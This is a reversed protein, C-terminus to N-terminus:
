SPPSEKAGLGCSTCFTQNRVRYTTMDLLLVTKPSMRITHTREAKEGIVILRM